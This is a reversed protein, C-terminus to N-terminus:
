RSGGGGMARCGPTAEMSANAERMELWHPWAQWYLMMPGVKADGNAEFIIM